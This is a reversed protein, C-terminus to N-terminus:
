GGTDWRRCRRAPSTSNTSTPSASSSSRCIAPVHGFDMSPTARRERKSNHGVAPAAETHRYVIHRALRQDRSAESRDIGLHHRSKVQTQTWALAAAREFAGVDHHKDVLDLVDERSSAVMTWFDVRATAGPAIRVRRRMAFIPDLVAGTTGSLPRGSMVASPARVGAGRGLFRARDTEFERKGVAEGDVVALHAAWVQPESPAGGAAIM